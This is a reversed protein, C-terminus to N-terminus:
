APTEEEPERHNYIYDWWQHAEFAVEDIKRYGRFPFRADIDLDDLSFVTMKVAEDKIYTKVNNLHEMLTELPVLDLEDKDSSPTIKVGISENGLTLTKTLVPVEGSAYASSYTIM